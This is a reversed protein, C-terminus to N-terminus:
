RVVDAVNTALLAAGLGGTALFASRGALLLSPSADTQGRVRRVWVALTALGVLLLPVGLPIPLVRCLCAESSFMTILVPPVALIGGLVALGFAGIAYDVPDEGVRPVRRDFAGDALVIVVGFLAVVALLLAVVVPDDRLILFDPNRPDILFVGGLAVALASTVVVRDRRRAPLWPRVAVWVAGGILGSLLGGFVMLGLTGDVTIAGIVNGNDTHRGVVDEHLITAFRMALRGGIGGAILGAVAGALGGVLIDRLVEALARVQWSRAEAM